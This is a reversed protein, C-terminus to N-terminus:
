LINSVPYNLSFPKNQSMTRFARYLPLETRASPPGQPVLAAPCLHPPWLSAQGQSMGNSGAHHFSAWGQVFAAQYGM